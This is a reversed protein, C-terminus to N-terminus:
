QVADRSAKSELAIVWSLELSSHRRGCRDKLVSRLSQLRQWPRERRRTHGCSGSMRKATNAACQSRRRPRRRKQKKRCNSEEFEHVLKSGCSGKSAVKM